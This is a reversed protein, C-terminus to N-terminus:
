RGTPPQPPPAAGIGQLFGLRDSELWAQAVRGGRLRYIAIGTNRVRRGSAPFVRFAGLHTGEWSWRIAVRDGEAVLDDVTYRIDPFATRLGRVTEAFGQPGREGAIGVYDDDVLERLAALDGGNLCDEYIRRVTRRHLDLMDGM